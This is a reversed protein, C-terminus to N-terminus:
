SALGSDALSREANRGTMKTVALRTIKPSLM